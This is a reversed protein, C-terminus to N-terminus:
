RSSNPAQNPQGGQHMATRMMETCPEMMRTHAEMMEKMGSQGMMMEGQRGMMGQGPVPAGPTTQATQAYAAGAMTVAAALAVAMVRIRNSM